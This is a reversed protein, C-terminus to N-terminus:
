RLIAVARYVLEVALASLNQRAQHSTKVQVSSPLDDTWESPPLDVLNTWTRQSSLVEAIAYSQRAYFDVRIRARVTHQEDRTKAVLTYTYGQSYTGPQTDVVALRDPEGTEAGPLQPRDHM